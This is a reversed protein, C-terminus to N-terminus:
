EGESTHASNAACVHVTMLYLTCQKLVLVLLGQKVLDQTPPAGSVDGGVHVHVIYM